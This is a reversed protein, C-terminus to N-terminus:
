LKKYSPMPHSNKFQSFDVSLNCLLIINRTNSFTYTILVTGNIEALQISKSFFNVGLVIRDHSTQVDSCATVVYVKYNYTNRFDFNIKCFLFPGAM